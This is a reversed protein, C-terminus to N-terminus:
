IWPPDTLEIDDGSIGIEVSSKISVVSAWRIIETITETNGTEFVFPKNTEEGIIGSTAFEELESKNAGEIGVAIRIEKGSIKAKLANCASTYLSRGDTCCGNTVLIIVPRLTRAGLYEPSLANAVMQLAVSTPTCEGNAELKMWMFDEILIGQAKDGIHWRATGGNGFEIARVVIEVNNNIGAEKPKPKLEQMCTNLQQIRTGCMSRSTDLLYYINLRERVMKDAM